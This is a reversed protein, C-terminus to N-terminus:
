VKRYITRNEAGFLTTDVETFRHLAQPNPFAPRGTGLTIPACFIVVEDILDADLMSGALTPGGEIMLRTIGQTALLRLGDGINLRGSPMREVRWVAVGAARLSMENAGPADTAAIVTTPVEQATTVVNATLPTRLDPDIVVRSPSRSALGPLRCTLAPDDAIVTGIGVMIADAEARMMHVRDNARPGTIAMRAGSAPGVFGDETLALKLQTFPRGLQIRAFHGRHDLGAEAEDLGVAVGLGYSTLMAFGRGRVRPDPDGIACIVRAVGARALADVCPGTRGYHSCPELAVYATAGRAREGAHALATTEGHPRGGPQTVGRGVIVGDKVLVCGVSPNPAVRGLNRRGLRLAHAMHARDADTFQQQAM